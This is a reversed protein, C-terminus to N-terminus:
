FFRSASIRYITDRSKKVVGPEHVLQVFPIGGLAEAHRYHHSAPAADKLKAEFLCWPQADKLVMFDTEKGDKTRVYALDFDATGSDKWLATLAKLEGAVFNEFRGGRAKCRTWDFFYCKPEKKLSRAINRSFPSVLFVVYTL